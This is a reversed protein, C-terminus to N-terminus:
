INDYRTFLQFITEDEERSLSNLFAKDPEEELDITQKVGDKDVFEFFRQYVKTPVDESVPVASVTCASFILSLLANLNASHISLTIIQVPNSAPAPHSYGFDLSIVLFQLSRHGATSQLPSIIIITIISTQRGIQHLSTFARRNRL